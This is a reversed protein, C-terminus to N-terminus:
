PGADTSNGVAPSRGGDPGLAFRVGGVVELRIVEGMALPGPHRCRLVGEPVRVEALVGDEQGVARVVTGEITGDQTPVVHPPRTLLLHDARELRGDYGLFRAVEATPPDTLLQQPTGEAAVQGEFMVVVRDALAWADARDHVVVLVAGAAERLASSTDEVLDQHTEGDLGAFPEDLLLIDPAVAIGRAVHVRRREGGSLSGAPRKALHAARMQELAELARSRRQRRPVGWWALALEVNARVSRRALGPAQLVTATRGARTVTGSAAPLVEGLCELLSSKGAGNPGLLAVVEGRIVTLDVERVVRRRGRRVDVGRADLLVESV